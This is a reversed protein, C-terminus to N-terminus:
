RERAFVAARSWFIRPKDCVVLGADLAAALTDRFAEESVVGKPEAVLVKGGPRLRDRVERLLAPPDPSEHVVWFAVAFSVQEDVEISEPSCRCARIREAVGAKRARKLMVDLMKQQVDVAIVRGDPGVMRALSISNFGMGCGIDLVAMGPEVYPGFMREPKFFLARFWNDFLYAHWWPCVHGM